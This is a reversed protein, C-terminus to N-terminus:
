LDYKGKAIERAREVGTKQPEAKSVSDETITEANKKSKTKSKKATQKAEKELLEELSYVEIGYHLAKYKIQSTLKYYQWQGLASIIVEKGEREEKIPEDVIIYKAKQNVAYNVINKSLYHSYTTSFNKLRDEIKNLAQMRKETGHGRSNSFQMNQRISKRQRSVQNQVRTINDRDGIKIDSNGKNTACVVPYVTDFCVGVVKDEKLDKKERRPISLSLNLMIKKGTKDFQISSGQPLFDEEFISNIANRLSHSKKLDGFVLDFEIGNVFKMSVSLDKTYLKEYFDNYDKHNHYITFCTKPIMLPADYKMNQLSIKGKYLGNKQAKKMDAKVRYGVQAFIPIGVPIESPPFDELSYLSYTEDDEKPKRSGRKYIEVLSDINGTMISTYAHSCLINYARNQIYMANRIFNYARSVENKDGKVVLQVKKTITQRKEQEM